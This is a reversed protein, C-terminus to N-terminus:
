SCAETTQPVFHPSVPAKLRELLNHRMVSSKLHIPIQLGYRDLANHQISHVLQMGGREGRMIWEIKKKPSEYLVLHILSKYQVNVGQTNSDCVYEM